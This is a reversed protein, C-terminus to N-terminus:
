EDNILAKIAASNESSNIVHLIKKRSDLWATSGAPFVVGKALLAAQTTVSDPHILGDKRWLVRKLLPHEFDSVDFSSLVMGDPVLRSNALAACIAQEANAEEILAELCWLAVQCNEVCLANMSPVFDAQAGEGFPVGLENLLKEASVLPATSLSTRKGPFWRDALADSLLFNKTYAATWQGRYTQDIGVVIQRKHISFGAGGLETVYRLAELFSVDKLDLTITATTNAADLDLLWRVDSCTPDAAILDEKLVRVAGALTMGNFHVTQLRVQEVALAFPIGHTQRPMTLAERKKYAEVMEKVQQETYFPDFAQAEQSLFGLLLLTLHSKM